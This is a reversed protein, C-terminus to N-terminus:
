NATMYKLIRQILSTGKPWVFVQHKVDKVEIYRKSYAEDRPLVFGATPDAVMWVGTRSDIYEVWAHLGM